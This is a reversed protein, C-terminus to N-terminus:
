RKNGMLTKNYEHFEEHEMQSNTLVSADLCYM